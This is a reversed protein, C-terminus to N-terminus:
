QQNWIAWSREAQYELMKQGNFIKCNQKKGKALFQTMAPNYTLDYLLHEETLSEYPLKPSEKTNPYTGLPTCNIILYYDTLLDPTIDAYSLDHASPQRSVMNFAIGLSRLAQAVAKAAGGTGLILAHDHHSELLPFLSKMFGFCDTNYGIRKGDKFAITNVAGILEAQKEIDDLLPIIKEKYPITVNLGALHKEKQVLDQFHSIEELKFTKYAAEINEKQFKETFYNESFSHEVPNGILGFTKM